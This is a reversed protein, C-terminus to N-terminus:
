IFRVPRHQICLKSPKIRLKTSLIEKQPMIMYDGRAHAQLLINQNRQRVTGAQDTSFSDEPTSLNFTSDRDPM